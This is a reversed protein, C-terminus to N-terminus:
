IIVSSIYPAGAYIQDYLYSSNVGQIYDPSSTNLYRNNFYQGSEFLQNKGLTTLLTNGMVKSTRDGHRGLMFVAIVNSDSQAAVATLFLAALTIKLMM